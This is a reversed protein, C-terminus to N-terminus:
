NYPVADLSKFVIKNIKNRFQRKEAAPFWHRMVCLHNHNHEFVSMDQQM